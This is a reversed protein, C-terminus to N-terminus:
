MAGNFILMSVLLFYLNDVHIQDGCSFIAQPYSQSNMLKDVHM